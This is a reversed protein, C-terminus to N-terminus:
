FPKDSYIKLMIICHKIFIGRFFNIIDIIFGANLFTIEYQKYVFSYISLYMETGYKPLVM